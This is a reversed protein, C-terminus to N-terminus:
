LEFIDEIDVKGIANRLRRLIAKLKRDVERREKKIRRAIESININDVFRMNLLLREEGSLTACM